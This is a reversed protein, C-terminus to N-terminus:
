SAAQRYQDMISVSPKVAETPLVVSIKLRMRDEVTAGLKAVRLRVEAAMTWNGKAWMTSHMLATDLLFAWDTELWSKSLPSRQWIAWWERTQPHWYAGEPLDPAQAIDDAAITVTGATKRAFDDPRTSTPKQVPGRGAMIM